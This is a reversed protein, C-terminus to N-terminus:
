KDFMKGVAAYTTVITALVAVGYFVPHAGFLFKGSVWVVIFALLWFGGVKIATDM